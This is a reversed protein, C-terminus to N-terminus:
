ASLVAEHDRRGKGVLASAARVLRKAEGGVGTLVRLEQGAPVGQQRQHLQPEGHGLYEDVDAPEAAQGVDAVLAVHDRDPRQGPMVVQFDGLEEGGFERQQRAGGAHTPSGCTRCRPVIPPDSACPSGADSRGATIRARSAVSTM